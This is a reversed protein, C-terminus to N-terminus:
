TQPGSEAKLLSELFGVFRERAEGDPANELAAQGAKLALERNGSQAYAISLYALAQFHGPEESLIQNLEFIAEDFAGLFTLSSGYRSRVSNDAPVLQLYRSYYEAAKTFAKNNFSLDALAILATIDNPNQRLIGALYDVQELIKAHDGQASVHDQQMNGHFESFQVVPAEGSFNAQSLWAFGFFLMGVLLCVLIAAPSNIFLKKSILSRGCRCCYSANSPNSQGCKKCVGKSEFHEESM